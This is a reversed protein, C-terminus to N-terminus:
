YEIEADISIDQQQQTINKDTKSIRNEYFNLITTYVFFICAIHLWKKAIFIITKKLLFKELRNPKNIAFQKKIYKKFKKKDKNEM